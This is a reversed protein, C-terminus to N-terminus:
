ARVEHEASAARALLAECVSVVQRMERVDHVRVADAGHLVAASVAAATGGLREGPPSATGGRAKEVEAIFSKRSPGVLVRQGLARLRPLAALLSLSQAANKAFGIGPDIWIRERAVGHAVAREVASRLEAAVDAVVDRYELNVGAVRGDGRTHMLVLEAGRAAVLQLLESSAGGSVDNVIAAGASLAAEAVEAHTTDISISVGAGLERAIRAIVPKVRALEEAVTVTPAGAGYTAGAPRSSAGGVDIVDAGEDLLRAAKAFAAEPRLAEGGDSFSDPTVNLVGWVQCIKGLTTERRM